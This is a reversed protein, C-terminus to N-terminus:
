KDSVTAKLGEDLTFPPKWGLERRIKSCDVQLSGVLKDIQDSKRLLRGVLRILALPCAFLRTSSGMASSLKRLLDPTSIDQWDSVLYTQGAAAPHTACLILADVLNEVYILSRLNKVSAFPLPIGKALVKIMQAFNGKVGVGYVLPPRVIVIEMGTKASVLHLVQEAEFKSVGYAGKPNADDLETFPLTTHTGNVGISSVFLFRKIGLKAASEALKRTGEVNVKRFEAFPTKSHETLIHVRAALHIVVDMGELAEDWRTDGDINGVAVTKAGSIPTRLGACVSHGQSLLETVLLKGIFGSGGTVLIKM